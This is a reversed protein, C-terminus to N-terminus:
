DYGNLFNVPHKGDRANVNFDGLILVIDKDKVFKNKKLM